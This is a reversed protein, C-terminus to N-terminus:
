VGDRYDDLAYALQVIAAELHEHQTAFVGTTKLARCKTECLAEYNRRLTYRIQRREARIRTHERLRRWMQVVLGMQAYAGSPVVRLEDSKLDLRGSM